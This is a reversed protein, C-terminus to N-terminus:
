GILSDLILGFMVSFVRKRSCHSDDALGDCARSANNPCAPTINFDADSKM